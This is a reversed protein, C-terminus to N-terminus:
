VEQANVTSKKQTTALIVSRTDIIHVAPMNCNIGLNNMLYHQFFSKM